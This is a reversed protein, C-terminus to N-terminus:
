RREGLSGQVALLAVAALELQGHFVAFRLYGARADGLDFLAWAVLGLSLAATVLVPVLGMEAVIARASAAFTRPTERDRDEEPVLRLWVGYHVSQAFCFCVVLRTATTADLGPALASAHYRVSPGFSAMPLADGVGFLILAALGIFLVIPALHLGRSRPRWAWWLGVAIVNHAHAFVVDAISGALEALVALGAVVGVGIARRAISARAILVAGCAAVLGTALRGTAAGALLPGGIALWAAPRRHLGPRVWLYRVDALLHPVGLVVPGLALVWLPLALALAFASLMLLSGSVAVRAERDAALRGAVPGLARLLRRRVVDAPSVVSEVWGIATM